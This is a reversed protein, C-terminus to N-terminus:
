CDADSLCELIQSNDRQIRVIEAGKGNAGRAHVAVCLVITPARACPGDQATIHTHSVIAVGPTGLSSLLSIYYPERISTRIATVTQQQHSTPSLFAAPDPATKILAKINRVEKIARSLISRKTAPVQHLSSLSCRGSSCVRRKYPLTQQTM